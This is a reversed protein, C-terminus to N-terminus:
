PATAGSRGPVQGGVIVLAVYDDSKADSIRLDPKVKAGLMGTAVATDTSAIVGAFGGEELIKKPTTLEEDRFGQHAIVFLVKSQSEPLSVSETESASPKSGCALAVLVLVPLLRRM